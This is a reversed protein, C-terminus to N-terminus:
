PSVALVARLLAKPQEYTNRISLAVMYGDRFWVPVVLGRITTVFVAQGGVRVVIPVSGGIQLVISRQFDLGAQMQGPRFRALEVTAELLKSPERLSYLSVQDVSLPDKETALKKAVDERAVVLGLIQAPLHASAAAASAPAPTAAAVARYIGLIAGLIAVVAAARLKM